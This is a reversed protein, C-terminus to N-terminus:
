LTTYSDHAEARIFRREEDVYVYIVIAHYNSEPHRIISQYRQNFGDFSVGLGEDSFYAEIAESSDGPGLSADIQTLVDAPTVDLTPGCAGTIASLLIAATIARRSILIV